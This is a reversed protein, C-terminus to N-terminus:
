RFYDSHAGAICCVAEITQSNCRAFRTHVLYCCCLCCIFLCFRIAMAFCFFSRCSQFPVLLLLMSISSTSLFFFKKIRLLSQLAVNSACLSFSILPWICLHLCCYCYVIPSFSQFLSAFSVDDYRTCISSISRISFNFILLFYSLM